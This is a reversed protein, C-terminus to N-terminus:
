LNVGESLIEHNKFHKDFDETAWWTGRDARWGASSGHYKDCLVLHFTEETHKNICKVVAGLGKPVVFPKKRRYLTVTEGPIDPEDEIVWGNELEWENWDSSYAKSEVVLMGTDSQVVLLLEDGRKIDDFDITDFKNKDIEIM